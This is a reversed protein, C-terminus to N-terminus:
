SSRGLEAWPPVQRLYRDLTVRGDPVFPWAPDALRAVLEALDLWWGDAVESPQHVVPGCRSREYRAEFVYALYNTRADAYWYRLCPRIECNTVGLEETLERAAAEAPDEGALVVGGAFADHMGPYVDKTDTRRHVYVRDREDRLLVATAAHPLNAARVASRPATGTVTGSTDGELYLAVLEDM